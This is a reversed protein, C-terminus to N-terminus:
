RKHFLLESYFQREGEVVCPVILRPFIERAGEYLIRHGQSFIVSPLSIDFLDVRASIKRKLAGAIMTAIEGMTDCLRAESAEEDEQGSILDACKRAFDWSCHVALLGSIEGALCVQATVNLGPIEQETELAPEATVEMFSMTEFVECTSDNLWTYFQATM